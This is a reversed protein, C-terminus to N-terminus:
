RMMCLSQMGVPVPPPNQGTFSCKESRPRQCTTRSSGKPTTDSSENDVARAHSRDHHRPAHCRSASSAATHQSRILPSSDPHNDTFQDLRPLLSSQYPTSSIVRTDAVDHQRDIGYMGQFLADHDPPTVSYTPSIRDSASWYHSEPFIGAFYQHGFASAFAPLSPYTETSQLSTLPVARRHAMLFSKEVSVIGVLTGWNAMLGVTNSM